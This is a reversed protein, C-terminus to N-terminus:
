ISKLPCAWLPLSSGLTKSIRFTNPKVIDKTGTFNM